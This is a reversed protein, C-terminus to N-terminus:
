KETDKNKITINLFTTKGRTMINYTDIEDFYGYIREIAPWAERIWTNNRIHIRLLL